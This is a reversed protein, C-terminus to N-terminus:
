KWLTMTPTWSAQLSAQLTLSLSVLVVGGGNNNHRWQQGFVYKEHINWMNWLQHKM